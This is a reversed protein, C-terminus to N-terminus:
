VSAEPPVGSALEELAERVLADLVTLDGPALHPLRQKARTPLGLLHTRAQIIGRAMRQEVDRLSVLEGRKVALRLEVEERRAKDLGARARQADLGSSRHRRVWRASAIADFSARRGRGGPTLTPLGAAAYESVRDANVGLIAALAHRDVPVPALQPECSRERTAM